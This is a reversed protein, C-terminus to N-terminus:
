PAHTTDGGAARTPHSATGRCDGAVTPTGLWCPGGGFAAPRCPHDHVQDIRISSRPKEWDTEVTNPAVEFVRATARIGLGEALCALVRV